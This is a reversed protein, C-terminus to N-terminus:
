KRKKLQEKELKKLYRQRYKELVQADKEAQKAAAELAKRKKKRLKKLKKEERAKLKEADVRDKEAWREDKAKNRAEVAAAREAAKKEKQQKKLAKPDMVSEAKASDSVTALSDSAASLSDAPAKLSDLRTKLSDARNDLSDRASELNKEVSALAASDKAALSDLRQQEARRREELQRERERVVRLSDRVRIQRNIDSIYGPFYIDTQTFKARPRANYKLRQSPRLSLPTVANRDVPRLEPTWKFGKLKQEEKSLQVVPYGDNKPEDYYYVKQIEGNKFIASIMKSESKNVTALVEQEELFFVASAGGLVDFRELASNEGFYALMEAGKIQDFLNQDEQITIFSNSMLSAKNVTGERVAVFISDASYQRVREQWIVPENFLRALSDLDCYLLSDCVIQMDKKYIKVNKNAKLFGMRTTDKPPEPPTVALTDALSDAAGLSDAVALSDGPAPLGASLSDAAVQAGVALSDRSPKQQLGSQPGSQPSPQSKQQSAQQPNPHSKQSAKAAAAASKARYNPDNQAAEEAAKAAEEAAKKRYNGVPDVDMNALREKAHVVEMSDIDCMRISQYVLHEAGLYVTDVSGDQEQTQTIVAPKRTLTVTSSSDAYHIRGALAFVNRTTDSVQVHGLMEVDSTARYFYLSDCWGEQDESMVHVNDRFFFTERSRDYWGGSSSLMNDDKWADTSSSFTALDYDSQYKLSGTKVFISDTFMNVNGTFTFTKIKSDYTGDSSEIIQGDKDRMSAGNRFIAVSDKTNYDLHRTRLTNHDKDQLQVLTGRFQALDDDILYTLKDSDLVTEEQLIRVNGWAEIFRSDVNWYATDCILYTGNHLFRAPGIIKRYSAGEVDVMQASTASMLIVLSDKQEQAHIHISYLLSLITVLIYAAKRLAKM